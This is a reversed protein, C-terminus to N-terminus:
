QPHAALYRELQANLTELTEENAWYQDIAALACERLSSELQAATADERPLERFAGGVGKDLLAGSQTTVRFAVAVDHRAYDGRADNYFTVDVRRVEAHVVLTPGAGASVRALRAQLAAQLDGPVPQAYTSEEDRDLTPMVTYLETYERRSDTLKLEFGKSRVKLEPYEAPGLNSSCGSAALPAACALTCALGLGLVRTVSRFTFSATM